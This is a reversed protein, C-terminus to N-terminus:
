NDKIISKGACEIGTFPQSYLTERWWEPEEKCESKGDQTLDTFPVQQSLTFLDDIQFTM